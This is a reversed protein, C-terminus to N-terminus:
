SPAASHDGDSSIGITCASSALLGEASSSVAVSETAKAGLTWCYTSAFIGTMVTSLVSALWNLLRNAARIVELPVSPPAAAASAIAM